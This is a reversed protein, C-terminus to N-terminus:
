LLAYKEVQEEALARCHTYFKRRNKFLRIVSFVHCHGNGHNKVTENKIRKM